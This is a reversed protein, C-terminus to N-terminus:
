QRGPAWKVLFARMAAADYSSGSELPGTGQSHLLRGDAELVFFHPYGLTKPWRRLIAANTNEPSWNIKLLVYWNDRLRKLEPNSTFFRDLVHCWTCWEGGVDVLVRRNTARAISLANELDRAADRKPDFRQPLEAISAARAGLPALVLASAIGVVFRRREADFSQSHM